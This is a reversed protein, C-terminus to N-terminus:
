RKKRGDLNKEKGGNTGVDDSVSDAARSKRARVADVRPPLDPLLHAHHIELHRRMATTGLKSCGGEKGLRVSMNCHKCVQSCKDLTHRDFHEWVFSHKKKTKRATQEAASCESLSGSASLWEETTMTGSPEPSDAVVYVADDGPLESTHSTEETGIEPQFLVYHTVPDNVRGGQDAGCPVAAKKM